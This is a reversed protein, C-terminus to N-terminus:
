LSSDHRVQESWPGMQRVRELLGRAETDLQGVRRLVPFGLDRVVGVPQVGPEHVKGDRDLKELLQRITLIPDPADQHRGLLWNRGLTLESAGELLSWLTLSSLLLSHGTVRQDNGLPGERREM